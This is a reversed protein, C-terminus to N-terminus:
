EDGIDSNTTLPISEMKLFPRALKLKPDIAIHYDPDLVAGVNHGTFGDVLIGNKFRDIGNADVITQDKAFGELLNLSAYYELNKIRQELVGIDKMTFRKQALQTVVCGLDSRGLRRAESPALSPYPKLEATALTMCKEPEAPFTPDDSYAGEIVRFDGDEDLIVRINKGRYYNYDTTFTKVPVPNTLGNGPRDIDENLSPNVSASSLTATSVATDLM